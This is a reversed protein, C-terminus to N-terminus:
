RSTDPAHGVGNQLRGDPTQAVREPARGLQRHPRGAADVQDALVGIVVATEHQRARDVARRDRHGRAAAVRSQPDVGGREAGGALDLGAAALAATAPEVVHRAHDFRKAALRQGHRAEVERQRAVQRALGAERARGRELHRDRRQEIGGAAEPERGGLARAQGPAGLALEDAHRAPAHVLERAREPAAVCSEADVAAVEGRARHRQRAIAQAQQDDVRPHAAPQRVAVVPEPPALALRCQRLGALAADHGGVGLRPALDLAAEEGVDLAPEVRPEGAAGAV